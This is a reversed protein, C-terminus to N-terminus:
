HVCKVFTDKQHQSMKDVQWKALKGNQWSAMKVILLVNEWETAHLLNSLIELQCLLL